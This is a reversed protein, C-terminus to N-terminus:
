FLALQTLWKLRRWTLKPAKGGTVFASKVIEVDHNSKCLYWVPNADLGMSGAIMLLGAWFKGPVLQWGTVAQGLLPVTASHRTNSDFAVIGIGNDEAWETMSKILMQGYGLARLNQEVALVSVYYPLGNMKTRFFNFNVWPMLSEAGVSATPYLDAMAVIGKTNHTIVFVITNPDRLLARVEEDSRSLPIASEQVSFIKTHFNVLDGQL